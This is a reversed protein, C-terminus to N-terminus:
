NGNPTSKWEGGEPVLRGQNEGRPVVRTGKETWTNPHGWRGVIGDVPFSGLSKGKKKSNGLTKLIKGFLHSLSVIFGVWPVSALLCLSKVVNGEGRRSTILQQM